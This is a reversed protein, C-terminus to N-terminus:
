APVKVLRWRSLAWIVAAVIVTSAAISVCYTAITGYGTVPDLFPYPVWGDSAGRVLVILVWVIPYVTVVGLRKWPLPGRDGILVWDLVAYIPLVVHLQTNAWELSMGGPLGALLTNYVIGVVAIYTTACGRVLWALPRQRRGTFSVIATFGLVVALVINSQMTFFGFFNFPNVTERSATDFFSATVATAGLLAVVLRLAAVFNTV